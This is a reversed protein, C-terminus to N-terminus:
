SKVHVTLWDMYSYVNHEDTNKSDYEDSNPKVEFVWHYLVINGDDKSNSADFYATGDDTLYM